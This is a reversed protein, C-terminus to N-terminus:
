FMVQQRESHQVRAKAIEFYEEDREIGICNMGELCAAKLTSGSGMFPDLVVGGPPVILRCLWRM